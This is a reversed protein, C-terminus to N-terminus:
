FLHRKEHRAPPTELRLRSQSPTNGNTNRSRQQADTEQRKTKNQWTACQTQRTAADFVCGNRKSENRERERAAAAAAAAAAASNRTKNQRPESDPQLKVHRSNFNRKFRQDFKSVHHRRCCFLHIFSYAPDTMSPHTFVGSKNTFFAM